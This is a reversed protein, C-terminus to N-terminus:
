LGVWPPLYSRARLWQTLQRLRKMTKLVRKAYNRSRRYCKNGSNYHCIWLKDRKGFRNRWYTIAKVGARINTHLDMLEECSHESFRQNIQMFGCDGTKSKATASFGSERWAIAAALFPDVGAKEAEAWIIPAAEMARGAKAPGAFVMMAVLLFAM